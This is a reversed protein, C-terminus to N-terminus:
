SFVLVALALGVAVLVLVSSGFTASRTSASYYVNSTSDASATSNIEGWRINSFAVYANPVTAHLVTTNGESPSCPGRQSGPQTSNVPWVSDLWQMKTNADDWLSMVLVMGRALAKGMGKLRGTDQLQMTSNFLPKLTDCYSDTLSDFGALEKWTPNKERVIKGDQVYHRRIEVLAGDATGDDTVFQTVVSFKRSTDVKFGAGRGYFQTNGLQYPNWGCGPRDCVGQRSCLTPDAGQTDCAFLGQITCTHTALQQSRSNAEWVDYEACCSGMRSKFNAKGNVFYLYTPCQADCYGTGYAAGATNTATRGGDAPMESFYFAANTGCPLTSLDVDFSIERGNLKFLKYTKKTSDLVYIRSGIAKSAQVYGISVTNGASWVSNTDQGYHIGDLACNKACTEPDPCLDGNWGTGNKCKVTPDAASLINRRGQDATVYMTTVSCGAKVTCERATFAPQTETTTSGVGQAAVVKPSVLIAALLTAAALASRRTSLM